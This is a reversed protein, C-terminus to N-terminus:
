RKRILRNEEKEWLENYLKNMSSNNNPIGWKEIMLSKDTKTLLNLEEIGIKQYDMELDFLLGGPINVMVNYGPQKLRQAYDLMFSRVCALKYLFKLEDDFSINQKKKDRIISRIAKASEDFAAPLPLEKLAMKLRKANDNRVTKIIDFWFEGSEIQKHHIIYDMMISNSSKNITRKEFWTPM